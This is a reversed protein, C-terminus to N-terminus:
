SLFYEGFAIVALTALLALGWTMSAFQFTQDERIEIERMNRGAMVYGGDFPVVVSAIRVSDNPQWTVRNQGSQDAARLAGLPYDPLQGDLLGSGAVPRGESDYVVIFPALSAAMDVKWAPIVSEVQVGPKLAAAADEAMQIQPDNAEQRYNQQVASYTLMCFATIAVAFPLWTRFINKIKM